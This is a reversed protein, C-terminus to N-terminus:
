FELKWVQNSLVGNVYGGAVYIINNVSIIAASEINVPLLGISWTNTAIDYIDFKNTQGVYQSPGTFFIIKNNQLVAKFDTNPQFLCATTSTQTNADRIEVSNKPNGDGNLGGAWYNKNNVAISAHFGRGESLSSQSWSGSAVDYIDIKSTSGLDYLSWNGTGGAFYIKGGIVTASMSARIHESLAAASWTNTVADYIDVRETFTTGGFWYGDEAHVGGAFLVKNGAAAAAMETRDLSLNDTTWTNTAADYIDVRSSTRNGDKYGGGFFIKNGLVVTAMGGRGQSLEATSWTNTVRDYIDVRSTGLSYSGDPLNGGAFLVKNGSSAVAIRFRTQSLTGVPVLQANILPRNSIDCNTTVVANVGVQVTDKSFLGGGDTVKLEFQYTGTVLAKVKTASDSPKIITFSAPGSIKIWLWESIKGDPDNSANGDLSISDTPLTILQDPGANAIPPQNGNICNECSREKQCSVIVTIGTLLICASFKLVLKM